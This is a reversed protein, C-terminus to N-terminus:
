RGTGACTEVRAVNAYAKGFFRTSIDVGGQRNEPNMVNGPLRLPYDFPVTDGAKLRTAVVEVTQEGLSKGVDDQASLNLKVSCVDAGARNQVRGKIQVAGNGDVKGYSVDLLAVRAETSPAEAAAPPKTGDEAAAEAPKEPEGAQVSGGVVSLSGPKGKRERAADQLSRERPIGVEPTATVEPGKSLLPKRPPASSSKTIAPVRTPTPPVPTPASSVMPPAALLVLGALLLM